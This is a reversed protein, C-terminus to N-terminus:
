ELQPVGRHPMMTGAEIDRYAAGGMRESMRRHGDGTV